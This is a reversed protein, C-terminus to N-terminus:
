HPDDSIRIGTNGIVPAKVGVRKLFALYALSAHLLAMEFRLEELKQAVGANKHNSM